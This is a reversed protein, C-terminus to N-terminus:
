IKNKQCICYIYAIISGIIVGGLHAANDVSDLQFSNVLILGIALILRPYSIYQKEIKGLLAYTIYAGFIGFIAGSAGMAIAITTFNAHYLASCVSAGIGSILYLILYKIHGMIPELLYGIIILSFMNGILHSIDFHMFTSTFLRYFEKQELTLASINSYKLYFLTKEAANIIIDTYLFLIVNAIALTITILPLSLLKRVKRNKIKFGSREPKTLTSEITNRIHNFEEDNEMFSILRESYIDAVWFLFSGDSFNKYGYPRDTVILFLTSVKKYGRLLFTNEFSKSITSCQEADALKPYKIDDIIVITSVEESGTKCLFTYDGGEVKAIKYDKEGLARILNKIDM